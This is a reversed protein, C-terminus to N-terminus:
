EAINILKLSTHNLIEVVQLFIMYDVGSSSDIFRGIYLHCSNYDEDSSLFCFHWDNVDSLTNHLDPLKNVQKAQVLLYESINFQSFCVLLLM